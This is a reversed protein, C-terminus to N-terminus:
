ALDQIAETVTVVDQHGSTRMLSTARWDKQPLEVVFHRIVYEHIVCPAANKIFTLSGSGFSCHPPCPDRFAPNGFLWLM